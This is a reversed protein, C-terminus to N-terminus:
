VNFADMQNSAQGRESNGTQTKLPRVVQPRYYLISWWVGYGEPVVQGATMVRIMVRM